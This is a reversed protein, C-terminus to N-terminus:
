ERFFSGALECVVRRLTASARTVAFPSETAVDFRHPRSQGLLFLSRAPARSKADRQWEGEQKDAPKVERLVRTRSSKM